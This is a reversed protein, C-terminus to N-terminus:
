AAVALVCPISIYEIPIPGSTLEASISPMAESGLVPCVTYTWPGDFISSPALFSSSRRQWCYLTFIESISYSSVTSCKQSCFFFLKGGLIQAIIKWSGGHFRYTLKNISCVGCSKEKEQSSNKLLEQM